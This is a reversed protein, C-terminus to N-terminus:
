QPPFFSTDETSDDESDEPVENVETNEQKDKEDDVTEWTEKDANVRAMDEDITSKVTEDMAIKERTEVSLPAYRLQRKLVTKLAMAEYNNAWALSDDYSFKKRIEEIQDPFMVLFDKAGNTFTIITYYAKVNGRSLETTPKHYLYPNTGYQYDFEDKQYVTRGEVMRVEGSRYLLTLLGKYEIIFKAKKKYPIICAQNLPTNPELGLQASQIVAALFSMPSTEKLKPNINWATLCIRQFREFTMGSIGALAKEIDPAAKELLDRMTKPKNSTKPKNNMQRSIANTSPM